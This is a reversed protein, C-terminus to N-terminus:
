LPYAGVKKTDCAVTSASRLEHVKCPNPIFWLLRDFSHTYRAKIAQRSIEAPAAKSFADNVIVLWLEDCRKRAETVSRSKKEIVNQIHGPMVDEVWGGADAFWHRDNGGRISGYVAIECIGGPLTNQPVEVAPSHKTMPADVRFVSAAIAEAMPHVEAKQLSLGEAFFIQVYIAPGGAEKHFREASKAIQDKLSQQEQHPRAGQPPTLHFVTFEIGLRHGDVALVFDPPEPETPEVCPIEPLAERLASLYEREKDKDPM